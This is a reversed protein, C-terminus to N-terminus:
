IFLGVRSARPDLHERGVARMTESLAQRQAPTYAPMPQLRPDTHLNALPVLEIIPADPQALPYDPQPM